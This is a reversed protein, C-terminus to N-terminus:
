KVLFHQVKSSERTYVLSGGPNVEFIRKEINKMNLMAAHRLSTLLELLLVM